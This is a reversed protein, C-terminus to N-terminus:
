LQRVQTPHKIPEDPIATLALVAVAFLLGGLWNPKLHQM